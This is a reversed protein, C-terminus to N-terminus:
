APGCQLKKIVGRGLMTELRAIILKSSRRVETAWHAESSSVHLVGDQDLTVRTVRGIAPGVAARWAFEVKEPCLPAKQLVEALVAPIVKYAPIV